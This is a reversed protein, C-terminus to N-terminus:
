VLTTLQTNILRCKYEKGHDVRDEKNYICICYMTVFNCITNNYAL